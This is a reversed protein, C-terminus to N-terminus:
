ENRVIVAMGHGYPSEKLLTQLYGLGDKPNLSSKSINCLKKNIELMHSDIEDRVNSFYGDPDDTFIVDNFARKCLLAETSRYKIDHICIFKVRDDEFYIRHALEVAEIGKPGDIFLGVKNDKFSRLIEPIKEYSDGQVLLVNDYKSMRDKVYVYSDSYAEFTDIAMIPKNTFQAMMETSGGYAVGSEIVLDVDFHKILSCLAFGESFVVGRPTLWTNTITNKFDEVYPAFDIM